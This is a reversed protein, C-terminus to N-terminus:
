QQQARLDRKLIKGTASLPWRDVIEVTRPAKYGAIRQKCFERLEAATPAPAGPRLQVVAHVREGWEDDPLGIVACQQVSPHKAVANEVEVSFVNEGGSIIMDKLRDVLYLYGDEDLYGGDGTHMWGDQLAEATQEPKNWYRLMVHDGKSCIEGVQGPMVEDGNEDVIKIRAHIAVRGQGKRRQPHNHDEDNLISCTPSLETQGYAQVLALSPLAARIRDLLAENIPSAGYFLHTLSGLDHSPREPHDVLRQIMTPVLMTTTVRRKEILRMAELPDFQDVLVLTQELLVAWISGSLGGMHFQPAVAMHAGGRNFGAMIITGIASTEIGTHTLAVGKSAGTTGGTYFLGFVRMGGREADPVSEAQLITDPEVVGDPTEEDGLHAFLRLSPMAERLAPVLARFSDGVIVIEVGAEELSAVIEAVSWRYNVPVLIGDAWAIAYAAQFFYDTNVDIIAVRDDSRMGQARMWGAIRSVRDVMDATSTVRDRYITFAASPDTQARRRLPQTFSM